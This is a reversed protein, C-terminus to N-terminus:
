STESDPIRNGTSKYVRLQLGYQRKKKYIVKPAPDYEKGDIIALKLRKNWQTDMKILFYRKVMSWIRPATICYPIYDHGRANINYSYIYSNKDRDAILFSLYVKNHFNFDFQVNSDIVDEMIRNLFTKIIFRHITNTKVPDFKCPYEKYKLGKGIIKHWSEGKKSQMLEKMGVSLM